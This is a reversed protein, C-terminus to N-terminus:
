VVSSFRQPVQVVRHSEMAAVHGKGWARYVRGNKEARVVNPLEGLPPRFPAIADRDIHQNVRDLLDVMQDGGHRWSTTSARNDAEVLRRRHEAAARLLDRDAFKMHFMYLDPDIEYPAWIGHSARAWGAPIRKLAPKCMLPVFKALRRQSLVPRDPELPGENALDHFVNLTMVGLVDSDPRDALLHRLDPYKAPDAVVFEDADAFLVADYRHLLGAAVGSILGMRSPEFARDELAPLRIVSCPLDDTSGDTSGDDIVVLADVGCQTGYHQLWRPLMVSEDRVMTLAALSPLRGPASRPRQPPEPAEPRRRSLRM